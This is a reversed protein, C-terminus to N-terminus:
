AGLASLPPYQILVADHKGHYVFFAGGAVAAAGAKIGQQMDDLSALGGAAIVPVDSVQVVKEIQDLDLGRRTGDRDVCQLLIEGVGGAVLERVHVEWRKRLTKGRASDFLLEGHFRTRKIDLSGVVASAGLEDSLERVLGLDQMAASNVSIREIGLSHIRRAQALSKIGGGYTIPIFAESVIEELLAYDPEVGTRGADIDLLVLEDVEKDNFIRVANIPDGVYRPSSFKSTKVLRGASLLLVPILRPRYM